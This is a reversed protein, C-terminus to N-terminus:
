ERPELILRCCADGRALSGAVRLGFPAESVMGYDGQMAIDCLQALEQETAGLRKWAEVLPCYHFRIECRQPSREAVEKEFVEQRGPRMQHEVFDVPSDMKGMARGKLQGYRFIARRAMADAVEDGCVARMEQFLLYLYTARDEIASRVAETMESAAM